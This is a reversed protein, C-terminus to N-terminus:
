NSDCHHFEIVNGELDNIFFQQIGDTKGFTIKIDNFYKSLKNKEEELNNSKFCIHKFKSSQDFKKNSKFFEIYTDNGLNIFYGYIEKEKNTFTHQIKFGMMDIYFKKVKQLDNSFICIHSLGLIM